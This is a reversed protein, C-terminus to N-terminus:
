NDKGFEYLKRADYNDTQKRVTECLEALLMLQDSPDNTEKYHEDLLEVLKQRYKIVSIKGTEMGLEMKM